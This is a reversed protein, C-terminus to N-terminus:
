GVSPGTTFGSTVPVWRTATPGFCRSCTSARVVRRHKGSSHRVVLEIKRASSKDLDRFMQLKNYSFFGLVVRDREVRWRHLGSRLVHEEVREFFARVGAVTEDAVLEVM